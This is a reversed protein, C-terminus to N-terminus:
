IIIDFDKIVEKVSTKLDRILENTRHAIGHTLSIHIASPRQIGPFHWGKKSLAGEIHYINKNVGKKYSISVVVTKPDGIVDIEELEPSEKIAKVIERM